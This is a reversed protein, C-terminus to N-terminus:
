YDFMRGLESRSEVLLLGLLPSSGCPAAPFSRQRVRERGCRVPVSPAVPWPIGVKAARRGCQDGAAAGPLNRDCGAACYQAQGAGAPATTAAVLESLLRAGNSPDRVFLSTPCDRGVGALEGFSLRTSPEARVRETSTPVRGAAICNTPNRFGLSPSRLHGPRGNIAETALDAKLRDPWADITVQQGEDNSSYRVWCSSFGDGVVILLQAINCV